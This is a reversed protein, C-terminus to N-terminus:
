FWERDLVCVRSIRSLCVKSYICSESLKSYDCTKDCRPCIITNKGYSGCIDSRILYSFLESLYCIRRRSVYTAQDSFVSGIGYLFIILGVLAPLILMQNYFGSLAFYFTVKEGMYSRILSLPQFKLCRRM